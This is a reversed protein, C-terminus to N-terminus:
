ELMPDGSRDLVIVQQADLALALRVLTAEAQQVLHAHQPPLAALDDSVQGARRETLQAALREVLEPPKGKLALVLTEDDARRLVEQLSRADLSVLDEFTFRRSRIEDAVAPSSRDLEALLRRETSADVKSLIEVMTEIGGVAVSEAKAAAISLLRDALEHRLCRSADKTLGKMTVTRRAVRTRTDAPLRALVQAGQDSRLHALVVAVLQDHEGELFAALREPDVARLFAFPRPENASRIEDMIESARAAGFRSTLFSLAAEDGGRVDSLSDVRARLTGVITTMTADDIAPLRALEASLAVAEAEGLQRLLAAASRPDLQALVAAARQRGTLEAM